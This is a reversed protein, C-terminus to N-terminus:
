EKRKRAFLVVGAAAALVVLAIGGGVGAFVVSGCGEDTETTGPETTGPDSTGPDTTGPDTSEATVTLTVENSKVGDIECWVKVSGAKDPTYEFTLATATQKQGDVYWAVSKATAGAPAVTATFTVKENVKADTKSASVNVSSVTAEKAFTTDNVSVLTMANAGDPYAAYVNDNAYSGMSFYGIATDGDVLGPVGNATFTTEPIIYEADNVDIVWQKGTPEGMVDYQMEYSIHFEITSGEIPTPIDQGSMVGQGLNGDNRADYLIVGSNGDALWIMISFGGSNSEDNGRYENPGKLFNFCLNNSRSGFAEGTDTCFFENVEIVIDVGKTFDLPKNYNLHSPHVGNNEYYIGSENREAEAKTIRGLGQPHPQHVVSFADLANSEKKTKLATYLASIDANEELMYNLNIKNFERNVATNYASWLTYETDLAASVGAILAKEYDELATKLTNRATTYRTYLEGDAQTLEINDNLDKLAAKATDLAPKNDLTEEVASELAALYLEKVESDKSEELEALRAKAAALRTELTGQDEETLDNEIINKESSSDYGLAYAKAEQILGPADAADADEIDQNLKELGIIWLKATALKVDYDYGTLLGQFYGDNEETLMAKMTEYQARATAIPEASATINAQTLTSEDEAKLLNVATTAPDFSTQLVAKVQTQVSDDETYGKDAEALKEEYIPKDNERLAEIASVVTERSTLSATFTEPSNVAKIATKYSEIATDAATLQTSKYTETNQDEIKMSIENAGAYNWVTIFADGNEDLAAGIVDNNAYGVKETSQSSHKHGCGDKLTVKWCTDQKEFTVEIFLDSYCYGKGGKTAEDRADDFVFSSTFTTAAHSIHDANTPDNYQAADEPTAYLVYNGNAHGSGSNYRMQPSNPDDNNHRFAGVYTSYGGTAEYMKGTSDPVDLRTKALNWGFCVSGASNFDNTGVRIKLGDVHVKYAFSTSRAMDFGDYGNTKITRIMTEPDYTAQFLTNSAFNIWEKDEIATTQEPGLPDEAAFALVTGAGMCSVAMAATLALSAIRGKQKM